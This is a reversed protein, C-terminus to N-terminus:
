QAIQEPHVPEFPRVFALDLERDRMPLHNAEQPSRAELDLIQDLESRGLSCGSGVPPDRVLPGATPRAFLDPLGPLNSSGCSGVRPALGAPVADGIRTG